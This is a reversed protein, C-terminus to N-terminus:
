YLTTLDHYEAVVVVVEEEPVDLHHEMDVLSHHQTETDEGEGAVLQVHVIDYEAVESAVDSSPEAAVVINDQVVAKTGVIDFDATGFHDAEINGVYEATDVSSCSDFCKMGAETHYNHLEAVDEEAATSPNSHVGCCYVCDLYDNEYFFDCYSHLHVPMM